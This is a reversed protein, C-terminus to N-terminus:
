ATISRARITAMVSGGWSRKWSRACPARSERLANELADAVGSGARLAAVMLDIADALQVEIRATQGAALYDELRGALLGVILSVAIVFPPPWGFVFHLLVAM